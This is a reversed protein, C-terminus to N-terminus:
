VKKRPDERRIGAHSHFDNGESPPPKWRRKVLPEHTNETGSPDRKKKKKKKTGVFDKEREKKRNKKRVYRYRAPRAQKTVPHKKSKVEQKPIKTGFNCRKRLKIYISTYLGPM